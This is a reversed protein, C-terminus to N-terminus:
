TATAERRAKRAKALAAARKKEIEKQREREHTRAHKIRDAESVFRGHGPWDCEICMHSIRGRDPLHNFGHKDPV